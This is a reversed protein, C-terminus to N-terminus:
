LPLQGKCGKSDVFVGESNVDDFDIPNDYIGGRIPVVKIRNENFARTYFEIAEHLTKCGHQSAGSVGTTLSQVLGRDFLM